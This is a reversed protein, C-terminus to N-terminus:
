GALHHSTLYMRVPPIDTGPEPEGNVWRSDFYSSDTYIANVHTHQKHKTMLEVQQLTRVVGGCESAIDGVYESVIAYSHKWHMVNSWM